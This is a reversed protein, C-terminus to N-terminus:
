LTTFCVHVVRINKLTNYIYIALNGNKYVYSVWVYSVWVYSVWVYSFPSVHITHKPFDRHMDHFAVFMHIWEESGSISVYM